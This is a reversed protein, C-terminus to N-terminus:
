VRSSADACDTARPRKTKKPLTEWDGIRITQDTVAPTGAWKCMGLVSPAPLEAYESVATVGNDRDAMEAGRLYPLAIDIM